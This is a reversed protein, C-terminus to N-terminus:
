YRPYCVSKKTLGASQVNYMQMKHLTCNCATTKLPPEASSKVSRTHRLAVLMCFVPVSERNGWAAISEAAFTATNHTRVRCPMPLSVM